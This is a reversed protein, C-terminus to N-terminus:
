LIEEIDNTDDIDEDDSIVETSEGGNDGESEAAEEGDLAYTIGARLFGHVIFQPNDAIYEAMDVLWKASQEKIAAMSLKVPQMVASEIDSIGQLQKMVKDSYWDEFRAKPLRQGAENCSYWTTAACRDYEATTSM